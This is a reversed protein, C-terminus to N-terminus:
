LVIMVKNITDNYSPENYWNERGYSIGYRVELEDDYQPKIFILCQDVKDFAAVSHVRDGPSSLISMHPVFVRMRPMTILTASSILVPIYGEQYGYRYGYYDGLAYGVYGTAFVLLIGGLAIMVWILRIM